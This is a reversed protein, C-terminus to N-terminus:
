IRVTEVRSLTKVLLYGLIAPPTQGICLSVALPLYPAHIIPALWLPVVLGPVLIIIPVILLTPLQFRRVLSVGGATCIGVAAGGLMDIAGMGGLFNGLFNALGLPLVLFPFLYSLSYLGTAIRIQYAGFSFAQTLYMIAVYMAIVLGSFAMEKTTSITKEM